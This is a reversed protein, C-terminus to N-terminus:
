PNAPPFAGEAPPPPPAPGAGASSASARRARRRRRRIRKLHRARLLYVYFVGVLLMVGGFIGVVIGVITGTPIGPNQIRRKSSIQTASYATPFSPDGLEVLTMYTGSDRTITLTVYQTVDREEIADELDTDDDSLVPVIGSSALSPKLDSINTPDTLTSSRTPPIAGVDSKQTPSGSTTDVATIGRHDRKRNGFRPNPSM